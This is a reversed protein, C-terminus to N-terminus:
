ADERQNGGYTHRAVWQDLEARVLRWQAKRSGPPRIDHRPVDARDQLSRISIGLYSAAQAQTLIAGAQNAPRAEPVSRTITPAPM